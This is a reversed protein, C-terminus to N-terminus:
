KTKKKRKVPEEKVETLKLERVKIPAPTETTVSGDWILKIVSDMQAYKILEQCARTYKTSDDPCSVSNVVNYKKPTNAELLFGSVDTPYNDCWNDFPLQWFGSKNIQDLINDFAKKSISIKKSSYEFESKSFVGTKELLYKYYNPNLLEPNTASLSDLYIKKWKKHSTDNLPFFRELIDFHFKEKDSLKTTDGVYGWSGKIFEKVIIEEPLLTIIATPGGYYTLRLIPKDHPRLSLNYEDFGHLFSYSNATEFSDKTSLIDKLPYFYFTTDKDEFHNPYNYGGEPYVIETNNCSIFVFLNIFIIFFQIKTSLLHM